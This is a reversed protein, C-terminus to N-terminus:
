EQLPYYPHRLLQPRFLLLLKPLRWYVDFVSRLLLQSLRPSNGATVGLVGEWFLIYYLLSPCAKCVLETMWDDFTEHALSM